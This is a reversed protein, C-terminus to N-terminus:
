AGFEEYSQIKIRGENFTITGGYDDRFDRRYLMVRLNPAVLTWPTGHDTYTVHGNSALLRKLTTTFWRPRKPKNPDAPPGKVRPFNHRGGPFSEIVMDWGTMDVSEVILQKNFISWWPLSVTIRKAHLFPRDQPTLGQIIVDEFVFDGPTVKARISGITMKRDLYRSAAAEAQAKVYPGIDVTFFTVVLAAFVATVLALAYLLWRRRPRAEPPAPTAEAAPPQQEPDTM